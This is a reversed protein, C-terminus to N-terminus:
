EEKHKPKQRRKRSKNISLKKRKSKRKNASLTKSKDKSEYYFNGFYDEGVKKGKLLTHLKTGVTSGNWWTFLFKLLRKVFM